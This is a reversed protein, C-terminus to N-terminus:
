PASYRGARRRRGAAEFSRERPMLSATVLESPRRPDRRPAHIATTLVNSTRDTATAAPSSDLGSPPVGTSKTSRIEEATPPRVEPAVMQHSYANRSPTTAAKLGHPKARSGAYRPRYRPSSCAPSSKAARVLREILTLKTTAPAKVTSNPTVPARNESADVNITRRSGHTPSPTPTTRITTPPMVIPPLSM